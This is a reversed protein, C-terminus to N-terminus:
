DLKIAGSDGKNLVTPLITLSFGFISDTDITSENSWPSKLFFHNTNKFFLNLLFNLLNPFLYLSFYLPYNLFYFQLFILIVQYFGRSLQLGTSNPASM